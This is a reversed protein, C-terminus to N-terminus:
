VSRHALTTATRFAAPSPVAIATRVFVATAKQLASIGMRHATCDAEAIKKQTASTANQDAAIKTELAAASEIRYAAIATQGSSRAKMDLAVAAIRCAAITTQGSSRDTMRCDAAVAFHNSVAATARKPNALDPTLLM